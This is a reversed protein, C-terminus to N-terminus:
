SPRVASSPTSRGGEDGDADSANGTGAESIADDNKELVVKQDTTAPVSKKGPKAERLGSATAAQAIRRQLRKTYTEPAPWQEQIAANLEAGIVVAFGLFFAFL